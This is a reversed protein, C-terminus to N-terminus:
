GAYDYDGEPPQREDNLPMTQFNYRPVKRTQTSGDKNVMVRTEVANQFCPLYTVPLPVWKNRHVMIAHGNHGAFVPADGTAKIDAMIRFWVKTRSASGAVPTTQGSTAKVMAASNKKLWADSIELTLTDVAAKMTRVLEEEPLDVANKIKAQEAYFRLQRTTMRDIDDVTLPRKPQTKTMIRGAGNSTGDEDM